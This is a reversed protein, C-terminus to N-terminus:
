QRNYLEISRTMYTNYRQSFIFSGVFLGFPISLNLAFNGYGSGMPSVLSFSNLTEELNQETDMRAVGMVVMGLILGMGSYTTIKARREYKYSTMIAEHSPAYDKVALELNEILLRQAPEKDKNFYKIVQTSTGDVGGTVVRAEYLSIRPGEETRAAMDIMSEGLWAYYTRGDNFFLVSDASISIDDVKLSHIRERTIGRRVNNVEHRVNDGFVYEGSKLYVHPKSEDVDEEQQAYGTGCLFILPTTLWFVLFRKVYVM